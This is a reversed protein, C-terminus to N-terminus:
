ANHDHFDWRTQKPGQGTQQCRQTYGVDDSPKRHAEETAGALMSYISQCVTSVTMAPSWADYLIDMCIHGNSYVHEHLPIPPVFIVEPSDMPYKDNFRFRLKFTQNDYLTQTDAYNLTVLWETLKLVDGPQVSLGPPPNQQLKELERQLRKEYTRAGAM